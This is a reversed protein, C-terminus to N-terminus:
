GSWEQYSPIKFTIQYWVLLKIMLILLNVVIGITFTVFFSQMKQM